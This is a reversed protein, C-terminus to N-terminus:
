QRRANKRSRAADPVCLIFALCPSVSLVRLVASCRELHTGPLCTQRRTKVISFAVDFPGILDVTFNQHKAERVEIWPTSRSVIRTSTPSQDLLQSPLSKRHNHLNRHSM